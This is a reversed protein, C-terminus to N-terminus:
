DCNVHSLEQDLEQITRDGLMTALDMVLKVDTGPRMKGQMWESQIRRLFDGLSETM